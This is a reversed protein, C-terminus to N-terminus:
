KNATLNSYLDTLEEKELAVLSVDLPAGTALFELLYSKMSDALDTIQQKTHQESSYHWNVELEGNLILAELELKHLRPSEPARENMCKYQNIRILGDEPLVADLQGIYNFSVDPHPLAMTEQGMYEIVNASFGKNPVGNIQGSIDNLADSVTQAGTALFVPYHSTFWGVTRTVDLNTFFSERGHGELQVLLIGDESYSTITLTLAALLINQISASRSGSTATLLQQTQHRDLTFKIMREDAVNNSGSGNVPFPWAVAPIESMTYWYEREQKLLPSRSFAIIEQAWEAYSNTKAQLVFPRGSIAQQILAQLDSLLIRLSVGDVLLHHVIVLLQANKDKAAFWTLRIPEHGINVSAQENRIIGQQKALYDVPGDTDIVALTFSYKNEAECSQAWENEAFKYHTRLMDHHAMLQELAGKVIEPTISQDLDLLLSMNWHDSWQEFHKFFRQQVPTMPVKGTIKQAPLDTRNTLALNQSLQAITPNKFIDAPKCNFGAEKIRSAIQIIQISDGGISFYNDNVSLEPIRLVSKWINSIATETDTLPAKKTEDSAKAVPLPLAGKDLKGNATIPFRDLFVWHAPVMHVPLLGTLYTTLIDANLGPKGTVYAALSPNESDIPLVVAQSVDPYAAIKKEIEGPEIRYGRIKVQLDNRAIWQLKGNPLLRVKDGTNYLKANPLDDFPNPIFLKSTLEANGIYGDSLNKGGIYLQGASGRTVPKLDKDLVYVENNPLVTDLTLTGTEANDAKFEGVLIGITTETPGYHNFISCDPALEKLRAAFAMDCSEGGLVLLKAPLIQEPQQTNLLAKLHSPVIKLCDIPNATFYQKIGYADLTLEPDIIHLCGGKALSPFIMTYGLDASFTSIQAYHGKAPMPLVQMIGHVYNALAGHAVAVAKPVGTSGSTFLLYATDTEIVAPLDVKLHPLKEPVDFSLYSISGNFQTIFSQTVKAETTLMFRCEAIKLIEIIRQEPYNEIPIFSGGAKMVALMAVLMQSSRPFWLAVRPSTCNFEAAIQLAMKTSLYDLQQYTYTLELDKVAPYHPFGTVSAKFLDTFLLARTSAKDYDRFLSLVKAEEKVSQLPLERVPTQPLQIAASLLAEYQDMFCKVEEEDFLEANFDMSATLEGADETMNLSLDFKSFRIPPNITKFAMDPLDFSSQIRDLNFTVEVPSHLNQSGNCEQLMASFPFNPHQFANLLSNKTQALIHAFDGDEADPFFRIPLLHTCYAVLPGEDNFNRGSSPIGVFFDHSESVRKVWAGFASLLVMFPTVAHQKSFKSVAEWIAPAFTRKYSGGAFRTQLPRSRYIPLNVPRINEFQTRWYEREGIWEASQRITSQWDAWFDLKKPEPLFATEGQDQYIKFLEDLIIQVSFGDAIIHHILFLLRYKNDLKYLVCRFLPGDTLAFPTTLEESIQKDLEPESKVQIISIKANIEDVINLCSGGADVFARLAQHRSVVVDFCHQLLEVDVQGALEITTPITYAANGTESLQALRWLQEQAQTLPIQRIAKEKLSLFGSSALAEISKKVAKYISDLDEESHETSLFCNRGEWIYIGNELLHYFFLDQNGTFEFRFLSGFHNVKFPAEVQKFYQNLRFVLRQTKQNLDRYLDPGAVDIKQLVAKSAALTVPHKCFTGAFFTTDAEPFSQDGYQWQGGDVGDMIAAKGAVIGVPMGGGVIKGYTGIDAKIGFWGQAGSSSARFGTIMEDIILIVQQEATIRRLTILFDAPQLEPKRSQVPEVIVAALENYNDQIYQLSEAAGYELLIIDQVMGPLIGPAVPMTTHGTDFGPEGLSGDFHGHYSNKFMVIKEKKRSARALRMAIMVAETGSNAFMVREMGTIKAVLEATEGSLSSQPGLGSFNDIQQHVAERIFDPDHGFLHVGFGMSIDIYQNGDIDWLYAGKAKNSVVPYLMEKTSFRFGASARNDALHKRHKAAYEKSKSTRQNYRIILEDLHNQQAESLSSKSKQKVGWSPLVAKQNQDAANVAQKVLPKYASVGTAPQIIHSPNGKLLAIQQEMLDLQRSIILDLSSQNERTATHPLSQDVHEINEEPKAQLVPSNVLLYSVLSEITSLEEFFQRVKLEVKFDSEIQRVASVLVLSDAGMELFSDQLQVQTTKVRLLRAITGRVQDATKQLMESSPTNIVPMLKEIYTEIDQQATTLVPAKHAYTNGNVAPYNELPADLRFEKRQFPYNPLTLFNHKLGAPAAQNIGYGDLFLQCLTDYFMGAGADKSHLTPLFAIGTTEATLQALTALIPKPGIELAHTIKQGALLKLCQHYLVPKRTHQRWHNASITNGKLFMMMSCTSLLPTNLPSSEVSSCFAEFEDLVPDMLCTHFGSSVPLKKVEIDNEKVVAIFEEIENKGGALVFHEPGNYAAIEIHHRGTLLAKLQDEKVHLEIMAGQELNQMLTGRKAVLKLVDARTIAGAVCAATYEGLSHGMVLDPVIGYSQLLAAVALEVAVIAPQAYRTQTLLHQEDDYLIRTLKVDLHKALLEECEDIVTKFVAHTKYLGAGMQPYQSGQGTFMFVMKLANSKRAKAAQFDVPLDTMCTLLEPNGAGHFAARYTFQTRGTNTICCIRAVDASTKSSLLTKYQAIIDKLASESKASLFLTLHDTDPIYPADVTDPRSALIIHCNTGGFGFGSVGAIREATDWDKLQTQVMIPLDDFSIHPNPTNFHLSPPIAKHVICLLTKIFGAIGAAAELHGFNTKVSGVACKEHAKRGEKLVKGLAKAEVPDGLLTGTGHLEVYQLGGPEIGAKKCAVRILDEQSKVNPATLGNTFGDQNVASGKIVALVRDGDRLADAFRKLVVAGAGEGRVYGDASADFTKCRGDAALMKAETFIQTLEPRLLANTGGAVATECEGNILSQCALHIAVLSSSCATDVAISPGKWNMLYSLRNSAISGANGTGSYVTINEKVNLNLAHDSTSIGTFVGVSRNDLHNKTLFANELAQWVAEYYIRHQPDISQAELESINFFSADFGYINNLLGAWQTAPENVQWRHSFDKSILDKGNSLVHWFQELNEAGPFRCGAGIVAILEPSGQKM